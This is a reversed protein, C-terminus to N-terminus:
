VRFADRNKGAKEAEALWRPTKGRGTWTNGNSDRYKVSVKRRALRIKVASNESRGSKASLLEDLTIGLRKMLAFITKIAPAKDAEAAALQKQLKEIKTRLATPSLKPM